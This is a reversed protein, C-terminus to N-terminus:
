HIYYLVGEIINYFSEYYEIINIILKLYNNINM